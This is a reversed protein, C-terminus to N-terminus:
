GMEIGVEVRDKIETEFGEGVGGREGTEDGDRDRNCGRVLPLILLGRIHGHKPCIGHGQSCHGALPLHGAASVPMLVM